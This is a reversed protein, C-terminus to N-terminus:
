ERWPETLGPGISSTQKKVYTTHLRWAGRSRRWSDVADTELVVTYARRSRDDVQEVTFTQHVVALTESPKEEVQLVSTHLRVRTARGFLFQFREKELTLDQSLGSPGFLQFGPARHALLGDLYKLRAARSSRTYVRGLSTAVPEAGACFGALLCLASALVAKNM